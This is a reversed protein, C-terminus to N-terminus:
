TYNQIFFEALDAALKKGQLEGERRRYAPCTEIQIANIGYRNAYWRTTHGASYPDGEPRIPVEGPLFVAHNRVEMFEAFERDVVGHHITSRNATGFILGYGGAPAFSPQKGFGHLDIFLVQEAGYATISREVLRGLKGHYHWYTAALQPDDFATQGLTDPDLNTGTPAERNGDIYARPVLLRVADVRVGNALCRQVIDNVIPWVHADRGKIGRKRSIFLGTLDNAIFGDHPVALIVRAPKQHSLVLSFNETSISLGSELVIM